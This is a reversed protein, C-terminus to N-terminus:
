SKVSIQYKGGSVVGFPRSLHELNRRLASTREHDTIDAVPMRQRLAEVPARGTSPGLSYSSLLVIITLLWANPALRNVLTSKGVGAWAVITLLM